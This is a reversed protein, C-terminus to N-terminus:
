GLAQSETDTKDLDSGKKNTAMVRVSALIVKLDNDEM